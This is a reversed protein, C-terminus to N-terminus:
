FASRRRFIRIRENRLELSRPDWPTNRPTEKEESPQVGVFVPCSLSGAGLTDPRSLPQQPATHRPSPAGEGWAPEAGGM